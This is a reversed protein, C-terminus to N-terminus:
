RLASRAAGVVYLSGTVFVLDHRDALELARVVADATTGSEEAFLGLARAAEAVVGPEQARPSPPRCAIVAAIRDPGLESLLVGPDRGRLCGMVVIVRRAAGFDDVLARGAAAAGAPNHAGDLVVLPHRRMVELRGPVAVVALAEQVIDEKIATGLFAEAAAVACAANDGQHAGPLPLYVESFNGLPTWLEVLRGGVALRNSACGFESGRRWLARAGVLEAEAELIASVEPSEDGQVLLSGTKIIGAKEGAILERTTGLIQTHDLEVNTVVAVDAQCVNTADYRGGLGVEVVTAEAAMDAFWAFAAATVLEFWTARIGLFREIEAVTGLVGVLAEDSIETGAFQLRENIRELHPSFYTGVALGCAQLIATTMRSTSGKGNTGTVHVIPYSTQPDGLAGVLARIRELSPLGLHGARGAEIAELNVHRDLWALTEGLSPAGIGPLPLLPPGAPPGPQQDPESM